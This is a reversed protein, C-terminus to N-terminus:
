EHEKREVAQPCYYIVKLRWLMRITMFVGIANLLPSQILTFIAIAGLAYGIIEIKEAKKMSRM